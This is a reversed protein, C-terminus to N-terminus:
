SLIDSKINFSNLNIFSTALAIADVTDDEDLNVNYLIKAMKKMNEKNSKGYGTFNIKVSSPSLEFLKSKNIYSLLIIVGRVEGIKIATKVNKKFFLKEIVTIEPKYKKYINDLENFLTNLREGEINEKSTEILGYDLLKIEKEYELVAYGLNSLGPDIGFVYM